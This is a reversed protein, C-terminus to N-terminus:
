FYYVTFYKRIYGPHVMGNQSKVPSGKLMHKSSIEIDTANNSMNSTIKNGANVGVTADTKGSRTQRSDLNGKENTKEDAVTKEQKTALM